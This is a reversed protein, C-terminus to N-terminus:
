FKEDGKVICESRPVSLMADSAVVVEWKSTCSQLVEVEVAVALALTLILPQFPFM